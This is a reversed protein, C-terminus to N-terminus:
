SSASFRSRYEQAITATALLMSPLFLTSSDSFFVPIWSYVVSSRSRAIEKSRRSIHGCCSGWSRFFELELGLELLQEIQDDMREVRLLLDEKALQDAVGGVRDVLSRNSDSVFGSSSRLRIRSQFILSMGSSFAPVSVTLSLPMPMDRSDITSFRPVM